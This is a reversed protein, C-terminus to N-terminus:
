PSLRFVTGDVDSGGGGTTVYLNGAPDFIPPGVPYAGDPWNGFTYLTQETWGSSGPSLEVIVGPSNYSDGGWVVAGYLNGNGDMRLGGGSSPWDGNTVDFALLVSEQWIGNAPSLEFVTGYGTGGGNTIGYLNGADDRIVGALPCSGDGSGHFSYLIVERWEGTADPTLKFVTGSSYNGGQCTAGYVAGSDDLVLPGQPAIGDSGGHFIHLLSKEWHGTVRSLKFVTGCGAPCLASQPGGRVTTGYIDHHSDMTVASEPSGENVGNSKFTHLVTLRWGKAQPSLEFVTGGCRGYSTCRRPVSYSTIGYLNGSEDSILSGEPGAGDSRGDFRHLIAEKWSGNAQPTLQFVTGCGTEPTSDGLCPGKGGIYTTGYLNGASDSILGASPILGDTGPPFSYIVKEIWRNQPISKLQFVTGCTEPAFFSGCLTYSVGGGQTTGYLNGNRDTVLSAVPQSGDSTDSVQFEHLVRETWTGSKHPTLEFVVGCGGIRCDPIGGGQTTGFLRGDKGFILGATPYAGDPTNQFNYITAFNFNGGSNPTLSYITGCGGGCNTSSGGSATTGYLTGSSDSILNGSPYGGDTNGTFSYLVTETWSNGSGKTLRFVTGCGYITGKPPVKVQIRLQKRDSECNMDGGYVTTGYVAGSADLTLSGSPYAGDTGDTFSYLISETWSGNEGPTLKFVTGWSGSGGASTTGYLNGADDFALGAVPFYGDDAASFNYLVSEAWSGNKLPSLEFVVGCGGDTCSGGRSTSGGYETTGYLNGAKDFIVGGVPNGGDSGGTFNYLVTEKWNGRPDVTLEFVAGNSLEFSSGYSGGGYTTGYLNGAADATLNAQPNAGHPLSVFSHLVTGTSAASFSVCLLVVFSPTVLCFRDLWKATQM